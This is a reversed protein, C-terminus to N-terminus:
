QRGFRECRPNQCIENDVGRGSMRIGMKSIPSEPIMEYNGVPCKM